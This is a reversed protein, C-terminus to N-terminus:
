KDSTIMLCEAAEEARLMNCRSFSELTQLQLFFFLLIRAQQPGLGHPLGVVAFILDVVQIMKVNQSSQANKLRLKSTQTEM